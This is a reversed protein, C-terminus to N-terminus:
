LACLACAHQHLLGTITYNHAHVPSLGSALARPNDGTCACVLPNDGTCACLGYLLKCINGQTYQLGIFPDNLLVSFGFSIHRCQKSLFFDEFVSIRRLKSITVQSEELHFTCHVM